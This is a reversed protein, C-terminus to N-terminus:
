QVLIKISSDSFWAIVIAGPTAEFTAVGDIATTDALKTGELNYLAVYEYDALGSITVIGGNSYAVIARSDPIEIEGTVHVPVPLFYLYGEVTPSQDYGDATVYVTVKYCGTLTVEGDSDTPDAVIDDDTLTYHYKAGPTSSEFLLKNDSFSISPVECNMDVITGFDKWTTSSKYKSVMSAHVWLTMSSLDCGSFAGEYAATYNPDGENSSRYCKVTKINTCDKFANAEITIMREPLILTSYKTGGQFAGEGIYRIYAPFAIEDRGLPYAVLYAMPSSQCLVGDPKATYTTNEESVTFNTLSLCGGFAGPGISTVGAPIYVSQIATCGLFAEAEITTVNAGFNITKLSANGKFWGSVTPQDIDLTELAYSNNFANAYITKTTSPISIHKASSGAFAFEGITKVTSPIIIEELSKCNNVANFGIETVSSPITLSTIGCSSFAIAEIVTVGEPINVQTMKGCYQFAGRSISTVTSPLLAAQLEACAHFANEGVSELGESFNASTLAKCYEFAGKGLTRVNTGISVQQLSTSGAFWKYVNNCNATLNVISNKFPAFVADSSNVLSKGITLNTVATCSTFANDKVTEVNDGLVLTTLKTCGAFWNEVTQADVSLSEINTCGSFADSAITQAHEGLILTKLTTLDKFSNGVTPMDLNLYEINTSGVFAEADFNTVSSPITLSTLQLKQSNVRILNKALSVVPVAGITSPIVITSKDEAMEIEEIQLGGSVANYYYTIGDITIEGDYDSRTHISYFQSWVPDNRFQDYYIDRVELYCPSQSINTGDFATSATAPVGGTYCEVYGIKCDQFAYDRVVQVSAPITVVYASQNGAFAYDSIGIVPKGNIESPIYLNGTYYRKGKEKYTIEVCDAFEYYYYTQTFPEEDEIEVTVEASGDYTIDTNYEKFNNWPATAKLDEVYRPYTYLTINSLTTGEFTWKGVEPIVASRLTMTYLNSCFGFAYEGFRTVGSPITVSTISSSAFARYGIAVVKKGDLEAPIDIAGTYSNVTNSNYTIEVGGEVINYYFAQNNVWYVGEYAKTPLVGLM